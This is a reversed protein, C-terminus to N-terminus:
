RQGPADEKLLLDAVPRRPTPATPWGHGIRLALQPPRATGLLRQVRDRAEPVEVLQSLYSAALGEATAALLVHQLAEGAQVDGARGPLTATLVAIVPQEEFDKGPVRAAGRGATFDRIVWMDQPAPLPGGASVPVGDYRDDTTGTWSALEARFAPDAMQSDHARRALVGLQRRQVPDDVVHLRCGELAAARRLEEQQPPDVPTESFPHRNTRRRPLAALLRTTEPNAPATSGRRVEAM